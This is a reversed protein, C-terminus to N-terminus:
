RTRTMGIRALVRTAFFSGMRARMFNWLRHSVHRVCM